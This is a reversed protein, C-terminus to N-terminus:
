EREFSSPATTGAMSFGETKNFPNNTSTSSSGQTRAKVNSLLPRLVNYYLVEAGRTAPLMVSPTLHRIVYPLSPTLKRWITFVTKFVFYMPVWYLIARLGMSEALNMSGFVVQLSRLM